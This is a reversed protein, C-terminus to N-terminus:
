AMLEKVLENYENWAKSEEKLPKGNTGATKIAAHKTVQGATTTWYDLTRIKDAESETVISPCALLRPPVGTSEAVLNVQEALLMYGQITWRTLSVPSIVIDAAYLAASLALSLAPPTDILICDYDLKKLKTSFRLLAGPDHLLEADLRALSPTCPLADIGLEVPQIAQDIPVRGTLVHHANCRELTEPDSNRFFYDTLNNNHDLDIALTKKGTHSLALALFTALSTKGTGGKLSAVAIIM